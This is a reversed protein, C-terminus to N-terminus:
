IWTITSGSRSVDNPVGAPIANTREIKALTIGVRNDEWYKNDKSNSLSSKEEATVASMTVLTIMIIVILCQIIKSNMKGGAKGM